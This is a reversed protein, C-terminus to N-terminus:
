ELEEKVILNDLLFKAAVEDWMEWCLMMTALRQVAISAKMLERKQRALENRFVPKPRSLGVEIRDEIDRIADEIAQVEDRLPIERQTM